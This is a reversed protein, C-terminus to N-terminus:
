CRWVFTPLVGLAAVERVADDYRQDVRANNAIIVLMRKLDPDAIGGLALALEARAVTDSASFKIRRFPM